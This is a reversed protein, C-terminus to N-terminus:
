DIGALALLRFGGAELALQAEDGVLPLVEGTIADAVVQGKLPLAVTRGQWTRRNVVLLHTSKEGDGFLGCALDADAVSLLENQAAVAGHFYLRALVPSLAHLQENLAQVAWYNDTPAGERDVLGEYYRTQVWEGKANRFEEVGSSYLFYIIGSAGRSLALGAQVSIEAASPKRYYVKDGRTESQVQVIAHWRGWRGELYRAVLDYGGLLFSLKSQLGIGETPVNGRFIYHEHQFINPQAGRQFFANAFAEGDAYHDIRGVTLAPRLSDVRAIAGVVGALAEYYRADYDEHGVLYGQLSGMGSWQARLARVRVGVSDAFGAGLYSRTAWNQLKDHTTFGPPEYFVPMRMGHARCFAMAQMEATEGDFGARQLWEIQNLELGALLAQDEPGFRYRDLGAPLWAGITLEGIPLRAHDAQLRASAVSAPEVTVVPFVSKPTSETSVPPAPGRDTEAGPGCGLGALLTLLWLGYQKM